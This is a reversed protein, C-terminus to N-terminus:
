TSDYMRFKLLRNTTSLVRFPVCVSWVVDFIKKCSTVTMTRQFAGKRIDNLRILNNPVFVLDSSMSAAVTIKFFVIGASSSCTRDIM